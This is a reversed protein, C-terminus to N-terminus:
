GLDKWFMNMRGRFLFPFLLRLCEVIRERPNQCGEYKKGIGCHRVSRHRVLGMFAAEVAMRARGRLQLSLTRM